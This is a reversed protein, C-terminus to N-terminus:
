KNIKRIQHKYVIFFFFCNKIAYYLFWLLIDSVLLETYYSLSRTNWPRMRLCILRRRRRLVNYWLSFYNYNNNTTYAFVFSTEHFHIDQCLSVLFENRNWSNCFLIYHVVNELTKLLVFLFRNQNHKSSIVVVM